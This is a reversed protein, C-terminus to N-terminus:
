QMLIRIDRCLSVIQRVDTVGPSALAALQKLEGILKSAPVQQDPVSLLHFQKLIDDLPEVNESQLRLKAALSILQISEGLEFWQETTGDHVEKLQARLPDLIKLIEGSDSPKDSINTVAGRLEALTTDVGSIKSDVILTQLNQSIADYTIINQGLAAIMTSALMSGRNFQTKPESDQTAFGFSEANGVEILSAIEVAQENLSKPLTSDDSHNNTVFPIVLMVVAIATLAPALIAPNMGAFSKRLSSLVHQFIDQIGHRKQIDPRAHQKNNINEVPMDPQLAGCQTDRERKILEMIADISNHSPESRDRRYARYVHEPELYSASDFGTQDHWAAHHTQRLHEKRNALYQSYLTKPDNTSTSM